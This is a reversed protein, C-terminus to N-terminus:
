AVRDVTRAMCSALAEWHDQLYFHNGPFIRIRLEETTLRQWQRATDETIVDHSGMFVTIPVPLPPMPAPLWTEMATFDARLLPEMYRRFDDSAAVGQPVGGIGVVFEWLQRPTMSTVPPMPPCERCGPPSAASIFLAKPLPMGSERAQVTCLLALLAGMSHGFLAYPATQAVPRISSFLDRTLTEMSSHPAERRRRGRGPLELPRYAVTEPLLPGLRAYYAANGGAHPICFLTTGDSPPPTGTHDRAPLDPAPHVQGATGPPCGPSQMHPKMLTM